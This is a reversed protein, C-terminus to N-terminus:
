GLPPTTALLAKYYGPPRLREITEGATPESYFSLDYNDVPDLNTL